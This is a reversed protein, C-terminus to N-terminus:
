SGGGGNAVLAKWFKCTDTRIQNLGPQLSNGPKLPCVNEVFHQLAKDKLCKQMGREKCQARYAEEERGTGNLQWWSGDCLQKAHVLEHVILERMMCKGFDKNGDGTTPICILSDKSGRGYDCTVAWPGGPPVPDAQLCNRNFVIKVNCNAGIGLLSKVRNAFAEMDPEYFEGFEITNFQTDRCECICEKPIQRGDRQKDCSDYDWYIQDKCLLPETMLDPSQMYGEFRGPTSFLGSADWRRIPLNKGYEFSNCGDAFISPDFSVWRAVLPQYMRARVYVQATSNDTYYGYKGVWRFPNVTTGTSAVSNGWADNLYTDTVNGSSDTLARTSGLADSHYTSTTTGRRQSIVGGYQQPENTYTVQVAGSGDLESMVCDSVSDWVFITERM